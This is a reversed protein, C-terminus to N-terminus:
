ESPRAKWTKAGACIVIARETPHREELFRRVRNTQREFQKADRHSLNRRMTETEDLFWALPARTRPHRSADNGSTNLYATLVPEPLQALTQLLNETQM